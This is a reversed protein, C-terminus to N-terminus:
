ADTASLYCLTVRADEGLEGLDPPADGAQGSTLAVLEGPPRGAPNYAALLAYNCVVKIGEIISTGQPTGISLYYCRERQNYRFTLVYDTGDLNTTQTYFADASTPVVFLTSM